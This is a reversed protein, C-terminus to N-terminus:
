KSDGNNKINQKLAMIATNFAQCACALAGASTCMCYIALM